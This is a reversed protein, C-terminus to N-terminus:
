QKEWVLLRISEPAIPADRDVTGSAEPEYAASFVHGPVTVTATQPQDTPNWLIVGIQEDSQFAKAVIGDSEVVVGDLDIFRGRLLLDGHKRRLAAVQRMYEASEDRSVTQVLAVEPPSNCDAYEEPKPVQDTTLYKVDATYRSEIEFCLGYTCAYNAYNRTLFPNPIRETAV